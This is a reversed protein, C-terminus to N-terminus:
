LLVHITHRPSVCRAVAGVGTEEGGGLNLRLINTRRKDGIGKRWCINEEEVCLSLVDGPRDNDNGVEGARLPTKYFLGGVLGSFVNPLLFQL